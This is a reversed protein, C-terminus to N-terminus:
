AICPARRDAGITLTRKGGFGFNWGVAHTSCSGRQIGEIAVLLSIIVLMGAQFAAALVESRAWGWTRRNDRPRLALTAAIFAIVLGASDVAMHGADAALSLSSTFFAAVLEAIFVTTTIALAIALRKRSASHGHSHDHGHSHTTSESHEEIASLSEACPDETMGPLCPATM